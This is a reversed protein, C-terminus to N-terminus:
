INSREERMLKEAEKLREECEELKSIKKVENDERCLVNCLGQEVAVQNLEEMLSRWEVNSRQACICEGIKNLLMSLDKEQKQWVINNNSSAFHFYRRSSPSGVYNESLKIREEGNSRYCFTDGVKLDCFKIPVESYCKFNNTRSQGQEQQHESECGLVDDLKRYTGTSAKGVYTDSFYMFLSGTMPDGCYFLDGEKLSSVDTKAFVKTEM